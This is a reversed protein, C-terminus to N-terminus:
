KSFREKPLATAEPNVLCVINQFRWLSESLLWLVQCSAGMMRM